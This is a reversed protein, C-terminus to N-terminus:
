KILEKWQEIIPELIFERSYKLSNSSMIKREEEDNILHKIRIVMTEIDNNDILYGNKGDHIIESPGTPVDFSILPLRNAEGEILSMPFGEYRSTMVQFAYEQYLNYLDKVQGLLNIKGKFGAEAIRKELDEKDEGEGCIDWSWDPHDSLIKIAIDVLLQFNKQYTLRGVSIIKKSTLNYSKSQAVNSGIPNYIQVIKNEKINLKEIYFREAAKTLVIIKDAKRIAYKRSIMQFKHDNTGAPDSHEWCFCKTKVGKTSLIGLPFYLEGCAILIDLNCMKLIERVKGIANKRLLATTMSFRHEYLKFMKIKNNYQYGANAIPPCFSIIVVDNEKCLENSIISVVRAIGGNGQCNGLIFGIKKM